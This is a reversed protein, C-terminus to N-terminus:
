SPFATRRRLWTSSAPVPWSAWAAQDSPDRTTSLALWSSPTPPFSTGELSDASWTDFRDYVKIANRVEQLERPPALVHKGELIATVQDESLTNGEIALSGQITRIRNARRLRLDGTSPDLASLRGLLQSIDAVLSVLASTIKFPPSYSENVIAPIKVRSDENFKPM